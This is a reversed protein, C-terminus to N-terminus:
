VKKKRPLTFIYSLYPLYSIFLIKFIYNLQPLEVLLLTVQSSTQNFISGELHFGFSSKLLLFFFFIFRNSLYFSFHTHHPTSYSMKQWKDQILLWNHNLYFPKLIYLNRRCNKERKKERHLRGSTCLTINVWKKIRNSM